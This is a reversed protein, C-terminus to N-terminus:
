FGLIPWYAIVAILGSEGKVRVLCESYDVSRRSKVASRVGIPREPALRGLAGYRVM